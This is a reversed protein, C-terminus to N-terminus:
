AANWGTYALVEKLFSESNHITTSGLIVKLSPNNENFFAVEKAEEFTAGGVIFIIIDQLRNERSTTFAFPFEAEKLRGKSLLELTQKLLPEHQTYVNQVGKLDKLTKKTFALFSKNGFLDSSRVRNGGYKLIAEIAQTVTIVVVSLIIIIAVALHENSMNQHILKHKLSSLKNPELEFRLAYLLVLRTKDLDTVAPNELHSKIKELLDDHHGDCAIEQETESVELKYTANVQRSLEGVLTVHKAVTGSLQKFQPYNDLFDRMDAISEINKTNKTKRQFEDVLEKLSMCIDGFNRFMNRKFFDDTEASLVIGRLEQSINPFSSLDVRQNTIGIWEHVMAQYTWQNLLPTV